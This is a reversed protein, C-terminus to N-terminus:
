HRAPPPPPPRGAALHTPTPTLHDRARRAFGDTHLLPKVRVEAVFGPALSADLGLWAGGADRGWDWYAPNDEGWPRGDGENATVLYTAGGATYAAIADPM